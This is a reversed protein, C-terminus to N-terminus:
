RSGCFGSSFPTHRVILAVGPVRVARFRRSAEYASESCQPLGFPIATTTKRAMRTKNRGTGQYPDLAPAVFEYSGGQSHGANGGEHANLLTRLETELVRWM